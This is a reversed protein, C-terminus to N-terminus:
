AEGATGDLRATAARYADLHVGLMHILMVVAEFTVPGREVPKMEIGGSILEGVSGALADGAARVAELAAIRTRLADVANEPTMEFETAAERIRQITLPGVMRCQLLDDDTMAIAEALSKIGARVLVNRLADSVVPYAPDWSM